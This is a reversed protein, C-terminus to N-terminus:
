PCSPYTPFLRTSYDGMMSELELPFVIMTSIVRTNTDSKIWYKIGYEFGQNQAKFEYLRLGDDRKCENVMTYSEYNQFIAKWNEASYQANLDPEEYGCPFIHLELYTLASSAVNQWTVAVRNEAVTYSKEWESPAFTEGTFSLARDIDRQTPEPSICVPTVTSLPIDATQTPPVATPPPTSTPPATVPTGCASLSVAIALFILITRNM